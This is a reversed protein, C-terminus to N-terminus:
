RPGPRSVARQDNVQAVQLQQKAAAMQQQVQALHYQAGDGERRDLIQVQLADSNIEQALAVAQAKKDSVADAFARPPAVSTAIIAMIM